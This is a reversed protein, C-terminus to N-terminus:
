AVDQMAAFRTRAIPTKTDSTAAVSYYCLPTVSLACDTAAPSYQRLIQNLYHPSAFCVHCIEVGIDILIFKMVEIILEPFIGGL